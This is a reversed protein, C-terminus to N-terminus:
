CAGSDLPGDKGPREYLIVGEDMARAVVHNTSARWHALETDTIVVLDVPYSGARISRRLDAM